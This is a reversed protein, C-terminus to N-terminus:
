APQCVSSWRFRSTKSFPPARNVRFTPLPPPPPAKIPRGEHRRCTVCSHVIKRVTSRGRIVWFKARLETLTERTGNHLVREHAQRIYLTTLPHDSPLLIPHKTSYSLNDAFSIRGRCRVIGDNDEFLMFQKKWLPYNRHSRLFSEAGKILLTEAFRRESGVFSTSKRTKSCFKLVYTLVNILRQLKSFDQSRVINEIDHAEMKSTLLNHVAKETARLEVLCESHLEDPDIEAESDVLPDPGNRWLSNLLLEM